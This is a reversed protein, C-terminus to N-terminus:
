FFVHIGVTIADTVQQISVSGGPVPGQPTVFPGEISNEFAHLYSASLMLCNTLRRSAGLFIAHQFIPSSAVNFFTASSPVPNENFLYGARVSTCENLEYHVGTALSMISRWGLGTVAGTADFGAPQGFGDADNYNIYRIDTAWLLYDNPRYGVGVSLIMPYDVNLALRRPNGVEDTSNFRFTEFWQPSKFSVGFSWPGDTEYYAGVQFGLAWHLRAHTGTPYTAAGNGDADDPAAFFAPDVGLDAMTFTPAFGISLRDTVRLAATPAIQILALESFVSGVGVGNPPPASFLPNAPNAPFNAGFGGITFIGLGWSWASEDPHYVIAALPLVAVGSLSDDSGSGLGAITSTVDTRPYLFEAGFMIESECLGTIAAPNWHMAGAADLPAGVTAGAMSRNVPGVGPLVVGQGHAISIGRAAWTLAACLVAFLRIARM